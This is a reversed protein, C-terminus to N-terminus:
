FFREIRRPAIHTVTLIQCRLKRQWDQDLQRTVLNAQSIPYPIEIAVSRMYCQLIYLLQTKLVQARLCESNTVSKKLRKFSIVFLGPPM